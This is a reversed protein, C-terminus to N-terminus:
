NEKTTRKKKPFQQPKIQAIAYEERLWLVGGDFTEQTLALYHKAAVGRPSHGLFWTACNAYDKNATLRSPSTKRFIKLSKSIKIGNARLKVLLRHYSTAINDIKNLRGNRLEETKLQGGDQNVLVREGKKDAFKRLLELTEPWLVYEVTPVGEADKTKSRKRIIRGREWDVEEQALDSLDKQSMSTNLMLLFYLRTRENAYSLLTRIEENTFTKLKKPQIAISLTKSKINRPLNDILETEWCWTVFSKM